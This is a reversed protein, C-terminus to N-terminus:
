DISSLWRTRRQSRRPRTRCDTGLGSKSSQSRPPLANENETLEILTLGPQVLEGESCLVAAVTGDANARVPLEMKM